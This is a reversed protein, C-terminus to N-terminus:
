RGRRERHEEEEGVLLDGKNWSPLTATLEWTPDTQPLAEASIL